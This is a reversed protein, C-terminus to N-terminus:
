NSSSHDMVWAGALEWKGKAKGKARQIRLHTVQGTLDGRYISLVYGLQPDEQYGEVHFAGGAPFALYAAVSGAKKVDKKVGAAKTVQVADGVTWEIGQKSILKAFTKQDNKAIANALKDVFKKADKGLNPYDGSPDLEAAAPKGTSKIGNLVKLMDKENKEYKGKEGVVFVTMTGSGTDLVAVLAEVATGSMTGTGAGVYGSMGSLVGAQKDASFGSVVGNVSDILLDWAEDLKMSATATMNIAVTGDKSVFTVTGGDDQTKWASPLDVTVKAAKFNFKGATAPAAVFLLSLLVLASLTRM